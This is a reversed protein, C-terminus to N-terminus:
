QFRPVGNVIEMSFKSKKTSVKKDQPLFITPGRKGMWMTIVGKAAMENTVAKPDIGPYYQTLYENFGSIAVHVGRSIQWKGDNDIYPENNQRIESIAFPYFQEFTMKEGPKLVPAPIREFSATTPKDGTIEVSSVSSPSPAFGSQSAHRSRIADAAALIAMEADNNKDSTKMQVDAATLAAIVADLKTNNKAMITEM